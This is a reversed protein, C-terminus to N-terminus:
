LEADASFAGEILYNHNFDSSFSVSVSPTVEYITVSLEGMSTGNSWANGDYVGWVGSSSSTGTSNYYTMSPIARMPTPFNFKSGVIGSGASHRWAASYFRDAGTLSTGNVPAKTTFTTFFYRQCLALEQGYSRHEFPTATDGVELQVGTIQWTANLTGIVSTAGTASLYNTAAWSGATGSYTSGVGLGWQLYAGRGNTKLWTGTTDGTITVTKYEWTDASDITYTYPHSRNSAGNKLVGGFTGTLSSRVWFSLTVTKASSTGFGFHAMNYGEIQHVFVCFQTGSLSSDATTTTFKVSNQFGEPASSDQQVSFAGDTVDVVDFRDVVFGNTTIASGGNRQDIVMAGNIIINRNGLQGSTLVSSIDELNATDGGLDALQRAKSM